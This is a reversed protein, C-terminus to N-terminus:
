QSPLSVIANLALKEWPGGPDLDRVRNYQERADAYRGLGFYARALHYRYRPVDPARAIAGELSSLAQSSQGCLVLAWGVADFSDTDDPHLAVLRRAAPLGKNCGTGIVDTYFRALTLGANSGSSDFDGTGASGPGVLTDAVIQADAAAIYEGEAKDYDGQLRYFEAWDLHTEIGDPELTNLTTLQEEALAWQEQATYLRALVHRTLPDSGDLAVSRQLRALADDADGQNFMALALRTQAPAYDPELTVAQELTSRALANEGQQLYMGGWLTTIAAETAGAAQAQAVQTRANDLTALTTSIVSNTLGEGLGPVRMDPVITQPPTSGIAKASAEMALSESPDDQVLLQALKVQASRGYVDDPAGGATLEQLTSRTAGWDANAWQAMATQWLASRGAVPAQESDPYSQAERAAQNWVLLADDDRGEFRLVRGLQALILPRMPPSASALALRAQREALESNRQAIYVYSLSLRIQPGTFTKLTDELLAQAELYRSEQLLANARGLAYYGDASPNNHWTLWFVLGLVVVLLVSGLTYAPSQEPEVPTM